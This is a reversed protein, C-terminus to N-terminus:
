EKAGVDRLREDVVRPEVLRLLLSVKMVRDMGNSFREYVEPFFDLCFADLDSDTRLMEGIRARVERAYSRGLAPAPADLRRFLVEIVARQRAEDLTEALVLLLDIAAKERWLGRMLHTAGLLVGGLVAVTPVQVGLDAHTRVLVVSAGIVVIATVAACFLFFNGNARSLRELRAPLADLPPGAAPGGALSGEVYEALLSRLRKV